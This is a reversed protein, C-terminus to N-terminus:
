SYMCSSDHFPLLHSSHSPYQIVDSYLLDQEIANKAWTAYKILLILSLIHTTEM